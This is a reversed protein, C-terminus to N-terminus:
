LESSTNDASYPEWGKQLISDAFPESLITAELSFAPLIASPLKM